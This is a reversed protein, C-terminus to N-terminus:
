PSSVPSLAASATRSPQAWPASSVVKGPSVVMAVASCTRANAFPPDARIWRYDGAQAGVRSPRTSASAETRGKGHVGRQSAGDDPPVRCAVDGESGAPRGGAGQRRTGRPSVGAPASTNADPHM